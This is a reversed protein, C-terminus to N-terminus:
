ERCIAPRDDSSCYRVERVIGHRCGSVMGLLSDQDPEASGDLCERHRSQIGDGCSTSCDSWQSWWLENEDCAANDQDWMKTKDWNEGQCAM